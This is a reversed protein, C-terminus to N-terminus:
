SLRGIFINIFVWNFLKMKKLILYTSLSNDQTKM